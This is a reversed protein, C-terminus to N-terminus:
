SRLRGLIPTREKVLDGVLDIAEDAEERSV